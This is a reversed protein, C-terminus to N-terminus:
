PSALAFGALYDAAKFHRRYNDPQISHALTGDARVFFVAPRAIDKGPLGEEHKVGWATIAVLEPDACIHFTFGYRDAATKIEEPTDSTIAVVDGGKARM